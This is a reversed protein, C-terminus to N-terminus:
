KLFFNLMRSIFIFIKNNIKKEIFKYNLIKTYTSIKVEKFAYGNKTYTPQAITNAM